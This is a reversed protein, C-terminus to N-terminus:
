LIAFSLPVHICFVSIFSYLNIKIHSYYVNCSKCDTYPLHAGTRLDLVVLSLSPNINGLMGDIEIPTALGPSGLYLANTKIVPFTHWLLRADIGNCKLTCLRLTAKENNISVRSGRLTGSADFEVHKLCPFAQFLARLEDSSSFVCQALSLTVIHMFRSSLLFTRLLGPVRDWVWQSLGLEKIASFNSFIRAFSDLFVDGTPHRSSPVVLAVVHACIAPSSELTELLALDSKSINRYAYMLKTVWDIRHYLHHRCRTVLSRSTLALACLDPKSMALEDVIRELVEIPLTGHRM